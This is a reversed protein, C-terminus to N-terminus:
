TGAPRTRPSSRTASGPRTTSTSSAPRSRRGSSRSAAVLRLALAKGCAPRCSSRRDNAVSSIPEWGVVRAGDPFLHLMEVPDGLYFHFIEDSRLRHMRSCTASTLLYYIATSLARTGGADSVADAPLQRRARYTERFWGGETTHPVLDLLECIREATLM